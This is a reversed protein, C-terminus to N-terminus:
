LYSNCTNFSKVSIQCYSQMEVYCQQFMIKNFNSM